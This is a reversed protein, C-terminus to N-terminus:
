QTTFSFSYDTGLTNGTYDRVDKSVTVTYTTQVSLSSSPSIIVQSSTYPNVTITIQTSGAFLKITAINIFDPDMSESFYIIPRVNPSANTSGDTPFTTSIIPATVDRPFISNVQANCAVEDGRVTGGFRCQYMDSFINNKYMESTFGQASCSFASTQFPLNFIKFIECWEKASSGSKGFNEYCYNYQGQQIVCSNIPNVTNQLTQIIEGGYTLLFAERRSKEILKKQEKEPDYNDCAFIFIAFLILIILNANQKKM